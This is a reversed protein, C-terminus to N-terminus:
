FSYQPCILNGPIGYRNYGCLDTGLIDKTNKLKIGERQTVLCALIWITSCIQKRGVQYGWRPRLEMLKILGVSSVVLVLVRYKGTTKRKDKYIWSPM